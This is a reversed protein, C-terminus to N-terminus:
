AWFRLFSFLGSMRNTTQTTVGPRQLRGATISDAQTQTTISGEASISRISQGQAGRRLCM